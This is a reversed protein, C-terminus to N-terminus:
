RCGTGSPGAAADAEEPVTDANKGSKEEILAPSTRVKPQETANAKWQMARPCVDGRMGNRGSARRCTPNQANKMAALRGNISCGRTWKVGRTAIASSMAAAKAVAAAKEM